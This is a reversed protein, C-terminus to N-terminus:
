SISDNDLAGLDELESIILEYEKTLGNQKIFRKAEKLADDFLEHQSLSHYLARSALESKPQLKTLQQFYNLSASFDGNTFHISGLMGLISPQQPFKNDLDQFIKIADASKNEKWLSCARNFEPEMEAKLEKNM